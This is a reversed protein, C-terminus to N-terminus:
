RKELTDRYLTELRAAIADLSLTQMVAERGRTRGVFALALTLNTALSGADPQALYCGATGGIVEETDGVGVTV